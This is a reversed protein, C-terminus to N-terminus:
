SVSARLSNKASENVKRQFADIRKLDIEAGAKEADIQVAQRKTEAEFAKIQTLAQDKIIDAQARVANNKAEMQQAQAKGMEAQALQMEPGPQSSAKQAERMWEQEEQTEPEKFGQIILQKNAYDRIHDLEPGDTMTILTTMLATRMPDGDPMSQIMMVIRDTAQEKQSSYSPGVEAFVEFELNNLDNVTKFTGKKEDFVEEMLQAPKRQGDPLTLIVERPQAYVEAAMSAYIQADRRKAHKLNEQYEASQEDIRSQLAYIAKGSMDPDGVAQPIGPDAVDEVAQRSLEISAMLASPMPQEPMVGVPGLPLPTGNLDKSNQLLYPYNNEAGSESYMEEFTQIQEPYFIPKPRPSRSVIDALYSLQFNRLRCPDKALRTIGEYYEVGDIFAREGYCPVVPIYEGAIDEVKLIREGSAIYKKVRDRKVEKEEVIQYGTEILEDMQEGLELESVVIENGFPDRMTFYKDKVKELYFCEVVYVKKDQTFWVFNNGNDPEKFSSCAYDYDEGTLDKVLDKYADESYAHLVSCRVADSKDLLKANADWMVKSNAEYIPKRKIVQKTSGNRSSEYETYRYWAGVGCVVAEQAAMNMAEQSTNSRDDSRYLGDLIDAGDTRSTEMPQFDVQVPNSRLQALIHRGAKRLVDFQGKYSLQSDDILNNDWQTVHYFILDNSAQERPEIGHNFDTDFNKKLQELTLM